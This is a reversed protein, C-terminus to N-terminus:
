PTSELMIYAVTTYKRPDATPSATPLKWKMEIEVVAGYLETGLLGNTPGPCISAATWTSRICPTVTVLPKYTSGGPLAQTAFYFRNATYATKQTLYTQKTAVPASAAPATPPTTTKATPYASTTLTYPSVGAATTAPFIPPNAAPDVTNAYAADNRMDSIFQEAIFAAEGRFKTENVTALANAQLGMMAILGVSFLLVGILAELLMVGSQHRLNLM